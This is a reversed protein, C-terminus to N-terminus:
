RRKREAQGGWCLSLGFAACSLAVQSVAETTRRGHIGRHTPFSPREIMGAALLATEADPALGGLAGAFATSDFGAARGVTALATAALLMEVAPSFDRHPLLDAILHTGIGALFAGARSRARAGVAAALIAHAACTM